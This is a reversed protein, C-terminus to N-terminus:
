IDFLVLQKTDEDIASQRRNLIRQAFGDPDTLSISMESASVELRGQFGTVDLNFHPCLRRNLIYCKLNRNGRKSRYWKVHLFAEREGLALVKALEEGPDDKLSISIVRPERSKKDMLRARFLAGLGRLLNLLEERITKEESNADLWKLKNLIQAQIFEDSYARIVEKQILIPIQSPEQHPHRQVYREYMQSCCDIFSRVIGSSLHVLSDFGAYSYDAKASLVEQFLLSPAYKKIYNNKDLPRSTKDIEFYRKEALTRAKQMAEVESPNGPLYDKITVNIDNKQLRDCAIHELRKYYAERNNTYLGDLDLTTYDHTEDVSGDLTCGLLFGNKQSAVKICLFNQSRLALLSNVCKQHIEALENAEDFLLFFPRALKAEKQVWQLVKHLDVTLTPMTKVEEPFSPTTGISDYFDEIVQDLIRLWKGSQQELKKITDGLTTTNSDSIMQILRPADSINISVDSIWCIQSLLISTCKNIIVCALYKSFFKYLIVEPVNPLTPLLRLEQRNVVGDRCNIYIGIFSNPMDVFKKINGNFDSDRSWAQALPELFKLHMSKGSGRSGWIITHSYSALKAHETHEKVFEAAVEQPEMLEASKIKFPNPM